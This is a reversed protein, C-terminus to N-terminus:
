FMQGILPRIANKFVQVPASKLNAPVKNYILSVQYSFSREFLTTKHLPPTITSKHRLDLAHSDYRFKLKNYLYDPRKNVIIKNFMVLSHFMRRESMTFWGIERMKASVGREYKRIGCIMRVCSNQMMQIRRADRELLCPGYLTDCFTFQSLVLSDCLMKKLDQSLLHRQNFVLKLNVFAKRICNSIHETFRLNVDLLLGLNRALTSCSLTQGALNIRLLDQYQERTQARGFLLIQCKKPNLELCHQTSLRLLQDLDASLREIAELINEPCFSIYLQTDDAYLQVTAYRLSNILQSTYLTFFLPGLISGQPVGCSVGVRGSVGSNLKVSQTRGTLYSQILQCASNEFGLFKLIALLLQHNLRDFAKSYDLLVLATLEGRDAAELIDNTVRLLATACSHDKRFGSQVTPLLRYTEIHERIQSELVKELVKSLTPLISIPRLDKLESPAPVKPVPLLFSSKWIDPFISTEICSNVIHLIYPLIHPCCRCLMSVGIGDTGVAQSKISLLATQVEDLTALRFQFTGTDQKKNQSYFNLTEPDPTSSLAANTFFNNIDDATGIHEPIPKAKGSYVGLERLLKWNNKQTNRILNSHLYGRKENLIANTTQNRLQRYREWNEPTQRQKYKSLAKDRLKMLYKINATIWPARKKSIRANRVPAHKDFLHLIYLNFMKLKENVDRLHLLNHFPVDLLDGHFAMQDFHKFDRYSILTPKPKSVKIHLQCKVLFHDSADFTPHVGSSLLFDTNSCLILDILTASNLGRRTPEDIIQTLNYTHLLSVFQQIYISDLNLVNLNFDGLCVLNACM